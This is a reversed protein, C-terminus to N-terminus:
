DSTLSIYAQALSAGGPEVLQGLGSAALPDASGTTAASEQRGGPQWMDHEMFVGIALGAALAAATAASVGLRKWAPRLLGHPTSESRAALSQQEKARTVIRAAFAEPVLPVPLAAILEELQRLRELSQRCDACSELHAEVRERVSPALESTAFLDLKQQVERCRM